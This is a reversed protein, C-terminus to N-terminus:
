ADAREYGTGSGAYDRMEFAYHEAAAELGTFIDSPGM